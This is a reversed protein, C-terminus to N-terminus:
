RKKVALVFESGPAFSVRPGQVGVQVVVLGVLGGLAAGEAAGQAGGALGGLVAGIAAVAVIKGLNNKRKVIFGEEDVGPQGKSNVVSRLTSQIPIRQDEHNLTDFYFSLVSKGKVRHGSKSQKIMGEM